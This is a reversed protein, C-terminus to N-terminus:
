LQAESSSSPDTIDPFKKPLSFVFNDGASRQFAREYAYRLPMEDKEEVMQIFFPLFPLATSRKEKEKKEKLGSQKPMTSWEEEEVKKEKLCKIHQRHQETTATGATTKQKHYSFVVGRSQVIHQVTM